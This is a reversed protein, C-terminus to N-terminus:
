RETKPLHKLLLLQPIMNEVPVWLSKPADYFLDWIGRKQDRRSILKWEEETSTSLYIMAGTIQSVCIVGEPKPDKKKWGDFTDVCIDEYPFDQPSHFLVERSKVEFFAGECQLDCHPSYRAIEDLSARKSQEGLKPTLGRLTFFHAVYREWAHGKDLESFFLDDNKFWDLKPATM